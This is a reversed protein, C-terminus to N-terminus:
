PNKISARHSVHRYRGSGTVAEEQPHDVEEVRRHPSDYHWATRFQCSKPSLIVDTKLLGKKYIFMTAVHRFRTILIDLKILFPMMYM